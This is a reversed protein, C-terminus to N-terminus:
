NVEGLVVGQIPQVTEPRWSSYLFNATANFPGPFNMYLARFCILLLLPIKSCTLKSIQVFVKSFVALPSSAACCFQSASYQPAELWLVSFHFAACIQFNSVWFLFLKPDRSLSKQKEARARLLNDQQEKTINNKRGIQLLKPLQRQVQKESVQQEMVTSSEAQQTEQVHDYITACKRDAEYDSAARAASATKTDLDGHEMTASKEDQRGGPFIDDYAPPLTPSPMFSSGINPIFASMRQQATNLYAQYDQLGAMNPMQIHSLNQSLNQMMTQQFQQVQEKFAAIAVAASAMGGQEEVHPLARLSAMSSHAEPGHRGRLAMHLYSDEADSEEESSSEVFDESETSTESYSFDNPGSSASQPPEWISRLSTASNARSHLTSGRRGARRIARVVDWTIAVDSALLGQRTKLTPDAKHQILRRVLEPHDHMAAYHLPTYGGIDRANPNAGRALLGATFRHYGLAVSLHLMTHGTTKRKLNLKARNVSDDMDLLDLVKLLKTETNLNYGGPAAGTFGNGTMADKPAFNAIQNIFEKLSETNGTLKHNLVSLALASIHEQNEDKYIFQATPRPLSLISGDPGRVSVPVHGPQPYPPLLCTMASEAWFTTTTARSDGFYVEHGQRFGSGFISIEIGGSIPGETPLVKLIAIMPQRPIPAAVSLNNNNLMQPAHVLSNLPQQQLAGNMFSNPSPARSNHASPPAPFIPQIGRNDTNAIRSADPHFMVQESSNPTQPGSTFLNNSPPTVRSFAQAAGDSFPLSSSPSFPSTSSSSPGPVGNRLSNPTQQTFPNTGIPTMHLATPIKSGSSKRKKASPGLNGPSPPRSLNRPTPAATNTLSSNGSHVVPTILASASRKLAQIDSTSQSHRFPHGPQIANMDNSAAAPGANDAGDLPNSASQSTTKDPTKHDDTVMISPTLDQALVTGRHDKLTFIVQFGVKEHHHRCYCAIRMPLDIVMTGPAVSHHDKPDKLDKLEHTNFVIIREAEYRKWNEDEDPKKNKKRNARKQERLVCGACIRVEGGNEPKEADADPMPSFSQGATATRARALAKERLSPKQMASSCVLQTSLELVDPQAQPNAKALFKPKSITHPPLRIKRIGEPVPHLGMFLRIQTEVRSKPAMDHFSMTLRPSALVPNAPIMPFYPGPHDLGAGDIARDPSSNAPPSVKPAQVDFWSWQRPQQQPNFPSAGQSFAMQSAPSVERSGTASFGSMSTISHQQRRDVYAPIDPNQNGRVSSRKTRNQSVQPPISAPSPNVDIPLSEESDNFAGSSSNSDTPSSSDFHQCEGEPPSDPKYSMGNGSPHDIVTPDITNTNQNNQDDVDPLNLYQDMEGDGHMMSQDVDGFPGWPNNQGYHHPNVSDFDMTDMSDMAHPSASSQSADDPDSATPSFDPQFTPNPAPQFLAAGTGTGGNLSKTGFNAIQFDAPCDRDYGLFNQDFPFRTVADPDFFIDDDNPQGSPPM